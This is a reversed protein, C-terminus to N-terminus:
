MRVPMVLYLYNIKDYSKFVGPRSADQLELTVTDKGAVAAICDNVYHYNLGIAMTEGAVECNIEEHVEGQEPSVASMTVLQGDADVDFRISPNGTAIVSVRKLAGAFEALPVQVTTTCSAPLLQKFNPFQGEIRRAVYTTNGFAFVVQSPTAGIVMADSDSPLSLVDHFAVGPIIMEFSGELSSTEVSTDCVALRYSDTAVLRLSNDGVTLLIGQLLPRSKDKSTVKYVKEVMASLVERPLEVQSDFALQPFEPFDNASLTNLRFTAKGCTIVVTHDTDEFAVAADPLNRVMNQLIKGPIVVAGPEEVNAAIRHRVSISLDTTQFELTGEEARVYVGSLIPLTSSTLGKSVINLATALSAQSVTFKM